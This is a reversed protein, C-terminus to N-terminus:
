GGGRGKREGIKPKKQSRGQKSFTRGPGWNTGKKKKQKGEWTRYILGAGKTMTWEGWSGKNKLISQGGGFARGGPSTKLNKKEAGGRSAHDSPKGGYKGGKLTQDGWRQDATSLEGRGPEL